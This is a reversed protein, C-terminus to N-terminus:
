KHSSWAFRVKLLKSEYLYDTCYKKNVKCEHDKVSDEYESQSFLKRNSLFMVGRAKTVAKVQQECAGQPLNFVLNHLFLYVVKDRLCVIYFLTMTLYAM